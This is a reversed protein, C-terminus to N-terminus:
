DMPCKGKGELSEALWYGFLWGYEETNTFVRGEVMVRSFYFKACIENMWFAEKALYIIPVFRTTNQEYEMFTDYLKFLIRGRFVATPVLYGQLRIHQNYYIEVNGSIDYINILPYQDDINNPGQICGALLIITTISIGALLKNKNM